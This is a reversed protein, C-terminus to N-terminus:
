DDHFIGNRSNLRPTVSFEPQHDTDGAFPVGLLEPVMARM